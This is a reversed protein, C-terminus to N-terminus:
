IEMMMDGEGIVEGNYSAGEVVNQSTGVISDKLDVNQLIHANPCLISGQIVCGEKITVHDMIVSNNIKVKDGITCHRGIISRKISVQDGISSREGVMCDKGISSHSKLDGSSKSKSVSPHVLPEDGLLHKQSTVNLKELHGRKPVVRPANHGLPNIKQSQFLPDHTRIGAM